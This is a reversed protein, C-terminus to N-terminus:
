NTIKAKVSNSKNADIVIIEAVDNALATELNFVEDAKKLEETAAVSMFPVAKIGKLKIKRQILFISSKRPLFKGQKDRVGKIGKKQTLWLNIARAPPMTGPKRGYEVNYGYNEKSTFTVKLSNKEAKINFGLGKGLKGTNEKRRSAKQGGFGKMKLNVRAWKISNNAYDKLGVQLNKFM